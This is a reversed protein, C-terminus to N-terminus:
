GPPNVVLNLGAGTMDSYTYPGVLGGVTLVLSPGVPDVKFAANASQDVVWVFGEVDISVGVPQSCGPIQFLTIPNGTAADIQHVGCPFDEAIWINGAIDAQLGRMSSGANFTQWTQTQVNFHHYQGSGAAWPDGNKDLGFGYVFAGGPTPWQDVKLTESDIRILPGTNWGLVWFDGEKNVAGGYPGFSQGSWPNVDVTDLTAGTKGDLRYFHGIDLNQDYHGVWVRDSTGTCTKPDYFGEWAVPRPGRNSSSPLPKHWLVCEDSGWALVNGPGNSTEIMGNGNTDVCNKTEAAVKMIGGNRDVVAADGLLNVSTRSPDPVNPGARYRGEEVGTFTNVKSVTGEPSNSIWIYSFKPKGDGDGCGGTGVDPTVGLDFKLGGSSGSSSGVADTTVDSTGTQSGSGTPTGSSTGETQTGTGTPTTVSTLTVTGPGAGTSADSASSRGDDGCASALATITALLLPPCSRTRRSM